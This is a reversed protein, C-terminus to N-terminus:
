KEEGQNLKEYPTFIEMWNQPKSLATFGFQEYLGHADLTALSWRRLGQLEPHQRITQMLWKSLGHRRYDPLIFVDCIYAFTALDTVVRAFGAQKGDHYIGFCISHEIAKKLREAKIGRAWYSDNTLYSYVTEFDILSKDTSIVFGKKEFASDNMVVKM